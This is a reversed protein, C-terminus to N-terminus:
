FPKLEAGHGWAFSTDLIQIYRVSTTKQFNMAQTEALVQGLFSSEAFSVELNNSERSLQSIEKEYKSILYTGGTLSSIQYAYFILLLWCALVGAMCVIKWNMEPLKASNIKTKIGRGIIHSYSLVATTM